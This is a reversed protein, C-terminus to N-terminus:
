ISCDHMIQRTESELEAHHLQGYEHAKRLKIALDTHTNLPQIQFPAFSELVRICGIALAASGPCESSVETREVLVEVMTRWFKLSSSSCRSFENRLVNINLKELNKLAQNLALLALKCFVAADADYQWRENADMFSRLLSHQLRRGLDGSGFVLAKSVKIAHFGQNSSTLKVLSEVGLRNQDLQKSEVLRVAAVFCSTRVSSSCSSMSNKPPCFRFSPLGVKMPEGKSGLISRVFARRTHHLAVCCGNRRQVEIFVDARNMSDVDESELRWLQIVFKPVCTSSCVLRQEHVDHICDISNTRLFSNMRASLEEASLNESAIRIANRPLPYFEPMLPLEEYSHFGLFPTADIPLASLSKTLRTGSFLSRPPPAKEIESKIRCEDVTDNCDRGFVTASHFM